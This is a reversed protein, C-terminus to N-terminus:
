NNKSTTQTWETDTKAKVIQLAHLGQKFEDSLIENVMRHRELLKKGEFKNSSIELRFHTEIAGTGRMASHHAHMHSDDYINLISPQLADTLKKQISLYRKGLSSSM